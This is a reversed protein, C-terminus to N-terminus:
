SIVEINKKHAFLTCCIIGFLEERFGIFFPLIVDKRFQLTMIGRVIDPNSEETLDVIECGKNLTIPVNRFDFRENFSRSSIDCMPEILLGPMRTSKDIFIPLFLEVYGVSLVQM